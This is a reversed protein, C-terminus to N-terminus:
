PHTRAYERAALFEFPVALQARLCRVAGHAAAAAASLGLDAAARVLNRDLEALVAAARGRRFRLAYPSLQLTILDPRLRDLVQALLARGRPDRHVVGVLTLEPGAETM